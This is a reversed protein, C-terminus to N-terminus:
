GVSSVHKGTEEGVALLLVEELQKALDDRDFREEALRRAAISAAALRRKNQIFGLLEVAAKQVDSPDLIIGAGTERRLDAKWGLYNIAV